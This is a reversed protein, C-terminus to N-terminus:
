LSELFYEITEKAYCWRTLRRRLSKKANAIKNVFPTVDRGQRTAAIRARARGIAAITIKIQRDEKRAEKSMQICELTGGNRVYQVPYGSLQEITLLADNECAIEILEIKRGTCLRRKQIDRRKAEDFGAQTKHFHEVYEYHQIGQIEIGVYLEEIYFDLELGSLWQPRHNERITCYGLYISLLESVRRQLKSTSM